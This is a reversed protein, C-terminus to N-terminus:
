GRKHITYMNHNDSRLSDHEIGSLHGEHVKEKFRVGFTTPNQITLWERGYIAKLKYSGSPTRDHISQALRLETPNLQTM